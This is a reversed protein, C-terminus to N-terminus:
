VKVRSKYYQKELKNMISIHMSLIENLDEKYKNVVSKDLELNSIGQTEEISIATSIVKQHSKLLDILKKVNTFADGSIEASWELLEESNRLVLNVKTDLHTVARYDDFHKELTKIVSSIEDKIKIGHLAMKPYRNAFDMERQRQITLIVGILTLIGSIVGGIIAGIFSGMFGIWTKEDGAVGGVNIFMIGNVIIPVFILIIIIGAVLFTWHRNNM